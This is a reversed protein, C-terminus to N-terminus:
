GGGYRGNGTKVVLVQRKQDKKRACVIGGQGQEFDDANEPIAFYSKCEACSAM